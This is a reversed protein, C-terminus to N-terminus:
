FPSVYKHTKKKYFIWYYLATHPINAVCLRAAATDLHQPDQCLLTRYLSGKFLYFSNNKFCFSLFSIVSKRQVDRYINTGMYLHTLDIKNKLM